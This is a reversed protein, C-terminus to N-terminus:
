TIEKPEPWAKAALEPYHHKFYRITDLNRVESLERWRQDEQSYYIALEPAGESQAEAIENKIFYENSGLLRGWARIAPYTKPEKM